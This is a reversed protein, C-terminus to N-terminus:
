PGALGRRFANRLEEITGAALTCYTLEEQEARDFLDLFAAINPAPRVPRRGPRWGYGEELRVLDAREDATLTPEYEALLGALETRLEEARDAM